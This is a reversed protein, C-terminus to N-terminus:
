AYAPRPLQEYFYLVLGNPETLCYSRHGWPQDKLGEKVPLGKGEAAALAERANEVEIVLFAGQPPRPDFLYTSSGRPLALVQIIGSAVSFLTGRDDIGREWAEIVPLELGDRFFARTEEYRPTFYSFRFQGRGDM